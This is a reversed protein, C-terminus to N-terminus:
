FKGGINGVKDRDIKFREMKRRLTSRSIQLEEATKTINWNNKNLTQLIIKRESAELLNLSKDKAPHDAVLDKPLDEVEVIQEEQFICIREIINRLERVNGPWNYNMMIDMAEASFGKINKELKFNYEDLFYKILLPIDEKRERLPPLHIPIINLRYYLDDRFNGKEIELKLDKNTAAVITSNFSFEKTSGIPRYKKEQLVRLMKAQLELDMDGIEDLFLVGGNAKEILGTKDNVAGTFAGKIHGFLESEQLNKPVAACNLAVFPKDLGKGEHILKAVIEKGTGSEGQILICTEMNISSIKKVIEKIRNIATSNGILKQEYSIKDLNKKTDIYKQVKVISEDIDKLSFPKTFYDYAGLKMAKVALRVESLHTIMIIICNPDIKKMNKLVEIGDIGPLKIDVIAMEPKHKKFLQLGEEGTEAEYVEYGQKLLNVKLSFRISKEDDIVM